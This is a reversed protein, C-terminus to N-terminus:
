LAGGFSVSARGPGADFSLVPRLAGGGRFDTLVALVTTAVGLVATSIVLANTVTAVRQAARLEEDWVGMPARATYCDGRDVVGAACRQDLPPLAASDSQAQAALSLLRGREVAYVSGVVVTAVLSAGTASAGAVFPALSLGRRARIAVPDITAATTRQSVVTVRVRTAVHDQARVEVELEGSPLSVRRPLPGVLRGGIWLTAGRVASRVELSGLQRRLLEIAQAIAERNDANAPAQRLYADFREIAEDFRNMRQLCRGQEYLASYQRPDGVARYLEYVRTFEALAGNYNQRSFYRRALDGRREVETPEAAAASAGAAPTADPQAQAFVSSAPAFVTVALLTARAWRGQHSM